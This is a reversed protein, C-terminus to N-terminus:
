PTVARAMKHVGPSNEYMRMATSIWPLFRSVRMYVGPKKAMACGTGWSVVGLLRYRSTKSLVDAAVFPGGSDGQCSDTGGKEYGACFMTTTVQNDYYDPGNCVADSIIPVHAEQLVNAQTGYYEVNGWGTVTGMQGDALRQGYTPLCVPQIYDTFQLPKTLALVAIDRSNDDINADVFPLYSSHYVVTKVEAIVINKRIPTNYISGMLVRWRSVHRYREPFCHAASIIWRDSIISGGCQHVGDYQLSVQWPWSGQRADVGGVIREEPLMRRGCDQCIVEIIQGKDCKCPYLATKIKKGYTLESEKVCFFDKDGSNDPACTVSFNVARVFGMEECSINAILQNTSSSCVHKWRRQTSDFVRLRQDAASVQVDFLGTDETTRLYTVLAWIAAGLGGLIILILAVVAAVRCWSFISMGPNGIKKEPM